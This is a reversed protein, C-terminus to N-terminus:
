PARLGALILACRLSTNVNASTVLLKLGNTAKLSRETSVGFSPSM